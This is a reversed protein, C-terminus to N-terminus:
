PQYSDIKEQDSDTGLIELILFGSEPDTLVELRHHRGVNGCYRYEGAIEYEVAREASKWRCKRVYGARRM